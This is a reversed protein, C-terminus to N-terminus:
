QEILKRESILHQRLQFVRESLSVKMLHPNELRKCTWHLLETEETVLKRVDQLTVDSEFPKNWQYVLRQRFSFGLNDHHQLIISKSEDDPHYAIACTNAIEDKHYVLCCLFEEGDWVFVSRNNGPISTKVPNDHAIKIVAKEEGRDNEISTLKAVGGISPQDSCTGPNTGCAWVVRSLIIAADLGARAAHTFIQEKIAQISYEDLDNTEFIWVDQLGVADLIRREEITLYALDGSDNRIGMNAGVAKIKTLHKKFAKIANPLGSQLTDITDILLVPKDPNIELWKDFAEFEDGFSQVWEHGMTGSTTIDFSIRINSNSTIDAGGMNGYLTTREDDQARRRAFELTKGPSAASKVRNWKTMSLSPYNIHKSFIGEALRVSILDGEWVIVPENPLFVSGEPPSYVNVKITKLENHLFNLFENKYGQDKLVACVVDDFTFDALTRLAATLGGLIAFSGNFPAKRIFYTKSAKKKHRGLFFDTQAMRPFYDDWPCVELPFHHRIGCLLNNTPEYTMSNFHTANKM